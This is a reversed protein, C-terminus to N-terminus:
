TLSGAAPSVMANLWYPVTAAEGYTGVSWRSSPGCPRLKRVAASAFRLLSTPGIASCRTAADVAVSVSQCAFSASTAGSPVSVMM